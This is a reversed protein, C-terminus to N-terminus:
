RDFSFESPTMGTIEKFKRCFHSSQRFDLDFAVSKVPEGACLRPMSAMIRQEDLWDQPSCGLCRQFERQLHRASIGCLKALNNARFKARQALLRWGQIKEMDQM